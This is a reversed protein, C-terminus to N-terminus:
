AESTTSLSRLLTTTAVVDPATAASSRRPPTAHAVFVLTGIKAVGVIRGVLASRMIAPNLLRQM